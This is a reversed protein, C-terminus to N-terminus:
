TNHSLSQELTSSKWFQSDNLGESLGKIRGYLLGQHTISKKKNSFFHKTRSIDLNKHKQSIWFIQSTLMPM